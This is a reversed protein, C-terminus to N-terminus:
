ILELNILAKILNNFAEQEMVRRTEHTSSGMHPSLVVNDLESLKGSYPEEVFCDIAAGSLRGDSLADFLADEDILGGRSANIIVAGRKVKKICEESILNENDKTMPIHLTIIDSTGLLEDLDVLNISMHNKIFRDYGIVECGFAKCIEAVTTGIRGCGVIGVTKGMLLNGKPGKWGGKRIKADLQPIKRLISLILGITLEAVARTPADPTNVVKIGLEVAAELDVSDLGVGCRSIVKLNKAASLVKRSLPEVGAIMGTPQYKEILGLVENESLRRGYPNFVVNMDDDFDRISFSSTTVLINMDIGGTFGKGPLGTM